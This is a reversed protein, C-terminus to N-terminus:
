AAAALPKARRIRLSTLVLRMTLRLAIDIDKAQVEHAQPGIPQWIMRWDSENWVGRIQGGRSIAIGGHPLPQARFGVLDFERIEALRRLFEAELPRARSTLRKSM